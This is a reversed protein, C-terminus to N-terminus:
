QLAGLNCFEYFTVLDGTPHYRLYLATQTGQLCSDALRMDNISSHFVRHKQLYEGIRADPSFNHPLVKYLPSPSHCKLLVAYLHSRNNNEEETSHCTELHNNQSSNSHNTHTHAAQEASLTIKKRIGTGTTRCYGSLGEPRISDSAVDTRYIITDDVHPFIRATTITGFQWTSQEPIQLIGSTRVFLM